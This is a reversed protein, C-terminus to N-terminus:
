PWPVLKYRPGEEPTGRYANECEKLLALAEELERQVFTSVDDDHMVAVRTQELIQKLTRPERM